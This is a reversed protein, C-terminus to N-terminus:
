NDEIRGVGSVVFSIVFRIGFLLAWLRTFTFVQVIAEWREKNFLLPPMIQELLGPLMGIICHCILAALVAVVAEALKTFTWNLIMRKFMQTGREM